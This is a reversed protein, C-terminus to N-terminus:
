QENNDGKALQWFGNPFYRRKEGTVKNVFITGKPDATSIGPNNKLTDKNVISQALQIRESDDRVNQSAEMYDQQLSSLHSDDKAHDRFMGTIKRMLGQRDQQESKLSKEAEMLKEKNQKIGQQIMQDISQKGEEPDERLHANILHAKQEMSLGRSGLVDLKLKIPDIPNSTDQIKDILSNYKEPASETPFPDQMAETAAKIFEPRPRIGKNGMTAMQSIYQQTLTKDAMKDVIQNEAHNQAIGFILKNDSGEKTIMKQARDTFQKRQKDSLDPYLGEKGKQLQEYTHTPDTAMDSSVQNIDASKLLSQVHVKAWDSNVHGDTIAQNTRDMIGKKIFQREQPNASRQYDQIDADNAQVLENKFDQSKRRLITNYVSSNRREIDLNAKAIFDERAGPSKILDAGQSVADQSMQDVRENLTDLNPDTAAMQSINLHQKAVYTQAKLTQRRNDLKQIQDGLGELGEGVDAVENGITAAAKPNWETPQLKERSEYIPVIAM